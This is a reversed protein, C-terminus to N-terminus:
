MPGATEKVGANHNLVQIPYASWLLGRIRKSFITKALEIRPHQIGYRDTGDILRALGDSLIPIGKDLAKRYAIAAEEDNGTCIEYEAAIVQSDSLAGFYRVMNEVPYGLERTKGMRILLYCGLLGAMPDIWKANLLERAQQYAQEIRGVMFSRQIYELRRLVPFCAADYRMDAPEERELSPLYQFINMEGTPDQTVVLLTLRDSLATITIVVPQREPFELSIFYTGPEMGWAAEALGSNDPLLLPHRYEEPVSRDIEWCRLRVDSLFEKSQQPTDFESGLLIQIGSKAKEGASKRFSMIGISRLKNGYSSDENIAGGALALVTSLQMSEAPGIAESPQLINAQGMYMQSKTILHNFVGTDPIPPADLKIDVSEGSALEVLREHPTGEPTLLRVRYFGPKLNPRDIRGIGSEITTGTNDLLELYSLPDNSNIFLTAPITVGDISKSLGSAPTGQDLEHKASTMKVSVEAPGYLDVQYYRKESTFDTAAARISYTRPQLDFHVPLSTVPFERRLTGGLDGVIVEAQPVAASPELQVDLPETPFSDASFGAFIPNGSGREGFQRPEQILPPVRNEGVLLRRRLVEQEVFKFLSEWRVVYENSDENWLKACGAGRLGSLLADTFAGRENGAERIEVAKVGPSTAYMIFQPCVPPTPPKPLPFQGILFEREGEWPINRCADIFFFQERFRTAQFREFISRLSIAKTTLTETFDNPIIGSENTFSMRASLGHGSYYFYFRDGEEGSKRFIQEIANFIADQTAPIASTGGPLESQDHPSLLLILNRPPVAGGEISTLWERMKLADKVAGNLCADTRWYQNIGIVIAWNRM